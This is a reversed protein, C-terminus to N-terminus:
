DPWVFEIEQLIDAHISKAVPCNVAANQLIEKDKTSYDGDAINLQIHIKSIRRPGDTMTKIVDCQTGNLEINMERAKIGMITLMCSALATAVLDTPSFRQALGKNDLPADTEIQNGSYTHTCLTRLEGEYKVTATTHNNMNKQNNQM